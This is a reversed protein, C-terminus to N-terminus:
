ESMYLQYGTIAAGNDAPAEWAVEISILSAHYSDQTIATETPADPAEPKGAVQLTLVDSKM